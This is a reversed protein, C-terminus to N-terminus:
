VGNVLLYFMGYIIACYGIFIIFGRINGNSEIRHLTYGNKTQKTRKIM